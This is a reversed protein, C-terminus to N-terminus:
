LKEKHFSYFENGAPILKDEFSICERDHKENCIDFVIKTIPENCSAIINGGNKVFEKIKEEAFSSPELEYCSNQPM